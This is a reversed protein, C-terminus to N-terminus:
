ARSTVRLRREVLRLSESFFAIGIILALGPTLFTFTNLRTVEGRHLGAFSAGAIIVEYDM